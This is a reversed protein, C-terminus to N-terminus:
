DMQHLHLVPIAPGGPHVGNTATHKVPQMANAKEATHIAESMKDQLTKLAIVDAESEFSTALEGYQLRRLLLKMQYESLQYTATIPTAM